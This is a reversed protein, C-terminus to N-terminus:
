RRRRLWRRKLPVSIAGPLHEDNYEPEPLVEVLQAGRDVLERVRHVGIPSPM